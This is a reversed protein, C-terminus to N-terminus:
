DRVKAFCYILSELISIVYSSCLCILGFLLLLSEMVEIGIPSLVFGTPRMNRNRKPM